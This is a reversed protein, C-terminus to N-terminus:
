LERLSELRQGAHTKNLSGNGVKALLLVTTKSCDRLWCYGGSGLKQWFLIVIRFMKEGYRCCYSRTGELCTNIKEILHFFFVPLESFDLLGTTVFRVRFAQYKPVM